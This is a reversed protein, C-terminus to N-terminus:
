IGEHAAATGLDDEGAAIPSRTAEVQGCLHRGHLRIHLNGWLETQVRFWNEHCVRRRKDILDPNERGLFLQPRLWRRGLHHYLCDSPDREPLRHQDKGPEL